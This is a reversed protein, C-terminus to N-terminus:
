AGIVHEASLRILRTLGPTQHGSRLNEAGIEFVLRWQQYLTRYASLLSRSPDYIHTAESSVGNLEVIALDRGAMFAGPDMYRVDFRGVFFGDVRRAIEDIRETLADTILDSGDLFIAGKAHNGTVGLPVHEGARPVRDLQSHLRALFMPAQLRYRSHQRILTALPTRGNGVVHPFQKDTLSFIRGRAAGPRRYYFIGAEYPGAHYVQAVVPGPYATFYTRAAELDRVVEVGDGRQGVDPKLVMPFSWCADAMTARLAEVRSLAEGPEILAHPLVWPEPLASLIRSKSEGVFGGDELGPNAAFLARSGRTAVLYAVWPAVPAYFIWAPWFEWRALRGLADGASRFLADGRWVLLVALPLLLWGAGFYTHLLAEVARGFIAALGVLLPTWAATAVASWGAFTAFPVGAAGAAVYVALRTGPLFRSTLIATAPHRSVFHDRRAGRLFRGAIWLGVDGAWIGAAVAVVGPLLPLRGEAVLFGAAVGALDESVLTGVSLALLTSLTAGTV